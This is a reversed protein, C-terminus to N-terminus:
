LRAKFEERFKQIANKLKEVTSDELIKKTAIDHFIDPYKDGIFSYFEEEFKACADVPIDDLFGSVAAWIIAVQKELPM